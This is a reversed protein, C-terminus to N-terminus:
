IVEVADEFTKDINAEAPGAKRCSETWMALSFILLFAILGSKDPENRM